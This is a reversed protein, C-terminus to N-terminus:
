KVKKRQGISWILTGALPVVGIAAMQLEGETEKTLVGIRSWDGSFGADVFGAAFLFIAAQLWFETTLFIPKDADGSEGTEKECRVITLRRGNEAERALPPFRLCLSQHQQRPYRRSSFRAAKNINKGFPSTLVISSLSRLQPLGSDIARVNSCM